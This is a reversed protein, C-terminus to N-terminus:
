LFKKMASQYHHILPPNLDNYLRHINLDFNMSFLQFYIFMTHHTHTHTNNNEIEHIAM